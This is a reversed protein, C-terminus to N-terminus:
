LYTLFFVYGILVFLISDLRDLIGGHGPILSSFDKCNYYRKIASFILDGFQSLIALFSTVIILTQLDVTPDIVQIYFICGIIVAMMFGGVAGELTKKPSINILMKTKGVLMGTFYAYTDGIITIILLFILYDISIFRILILLSFSYALFFLVGTLFFADSINYQKANNYIITPLLYVLFLGSLLRLDFTMTVAYYEFAFIYISLMVYSIFKVFLPIQKKKEMIDLFEKLALLALGYVALQFVFGGIIVIPTIILLIILASLIRNAIM